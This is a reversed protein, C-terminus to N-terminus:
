KVDQSRFESHRSPFMSLEHKSMVERLKKPLVPCHSASEFHIQVDPTELVVVVVVVDAM